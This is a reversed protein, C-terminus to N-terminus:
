KITALSYLYIKERRVIYQATHKNRYYQKSLFDRMKSHIPSIAIRADNNLSTLTYTKNFDKCISIPKDANSINTIGVHVIIIYM